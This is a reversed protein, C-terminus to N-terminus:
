LAGWVIDVLPRLMAGAVLALVIMAVVEFRGEGRAADNWGRSYAAEIEDDRTLM